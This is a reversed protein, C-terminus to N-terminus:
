TTNLCIHSFSKLIGSFSVSRILHLMNDLNEWAQRSRRGSFSLISALVDLDKSTDQSSRQGGPNLGPLCPGSIM